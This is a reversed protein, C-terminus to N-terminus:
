QEKESNGVTNISMVLNKFRQSCDSPCSIQVSEERSRSHLLPLSLEFGSVTKQLVM